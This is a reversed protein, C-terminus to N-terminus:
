FNFMMMAQVKGGDTIGADLWAGGKFLRLLLAWETGEHVGGTYERGQIVFWTALTDYDHEYPAIGMQLTDIRHTFGRGSQLDTKVSGYIRRTEYDLQAGANWAAEHDNTESRYASGAGGWTFLNAQATERNWRKVLYNLRLYTIERRRETVDSDLELYGGGLSWDYRPAYFVQAENMTGGGYEAMVTTGQAYAIPKAFLSAPTVTLAGAFLLRVLNM